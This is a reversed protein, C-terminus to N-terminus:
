ISSDHHTGEHCRQDLSLPAGLVIMAPIFSVTPATRFVSSPVVDRCLWLVSCTRQKLLVPWALLPVACVGTGTEPVPTTGSRTEDPIQDPTIRNPSRQDDQNHWQLQIGERAM